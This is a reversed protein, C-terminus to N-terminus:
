SLVFENQISSLNHLSTKQFIVSFDRNFALDLNDEEYKSGSKMPQLKVADFEM